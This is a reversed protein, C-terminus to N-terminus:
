QRTASTMNIKGCDSHHLINPYAPIEPYCVFQKVEALTAETLPLVICRKKILVFPHVEETPAFDNWLVIYPKFAYGKGLPQYLQLVSVRYEDNSQFTIATKGYQLSISTHSLFYSAMRIDRNRIHEVVLCVASMFLIGTIIEFTRCSLVSFVVTVVGMAVFIFLLMALAFPIVKCEEKPFVFDSLEKTM